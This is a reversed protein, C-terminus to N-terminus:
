NEFHKATYTREFDTDLLGAKLVQSFTQRETM